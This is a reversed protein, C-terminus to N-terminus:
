GHKHFKIPLICELLVNQNTSICELVVNQNTSICELVVNQNTPICELVVNQNTSICELVVNRNTSIYKRLTSYANAFCIMHFAVNVKYELIFLFGILRLIEALYALLMM